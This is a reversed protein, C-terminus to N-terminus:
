PSSSSSPDLWLSSEYNSVLMDLDQITEFELDANAVSRVADGKYSGALALIAMGTCVAAPAVVRLLWRWMGADVEPEPTEIARMVKRAFYPSAEVRRSRGLLQWLADDGDEPPLKNSDLSAM